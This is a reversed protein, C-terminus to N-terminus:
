NAVPNLTFDAAQEPLSELVIFFGRQGQAEVAVRDLAPTVFPAHKVKEMSPPETIPMIREELSDTIGSEDFFKVLIKPPSLECYLLNEIRGQIILVQTGDDRKLWNGQVSEPVIVWDKDRVSVPLHLNILVSRVWPHDLWVDQKYWFGTGSIILLIVVLWPWISIEKRAPPTPEVTESIALAKDTPEPDNNTATEDRPEENLEQLDISETNGIEEDAINGEPMEEAVDAKEDSHSIPEIFEKVEKAYEHKGALFGPIPISSTSESETTKHMTESDSVESGSDDEDAIPQQEASLHDFLPLSPANAASDREEQQKRAEDGMNFETHCRHCVLVANKIAPGVNYAANCHPCSIHM